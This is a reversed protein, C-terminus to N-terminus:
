FSFFHMSPLDGQRLSQMINDVAKGPINNVMVITTSSSYMNKLRRIVKMNLGKNQLVMFVWDMCLFDFAAVLDTDLIGCGSHGPKGAAFIANRAMNIGHHVRRETGAVLQLPSLTFQSRCKPSLIKALPDSLSMKVILGFHDSFALPLYWTQAVRM